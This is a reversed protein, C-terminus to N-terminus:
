RGNVRKFATVWDVATGSVAPWVGRSEKEYVYGKPTERFNMYEWVDVGSSKPSFNVGFSRGGFNFLLTDFKYRVRSFDPDDRLVSFVAGKLERKGVPNVSLSEVSFLKSVPFPKPKSLGVFPVSSKTSGYGYKAKAAVARAQGAKNKGRFGSM